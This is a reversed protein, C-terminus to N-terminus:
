IGILFINQILSFLWFGFDFGFGFCVINPGEIENLDTLKQNKYKSSTDNKLVSM